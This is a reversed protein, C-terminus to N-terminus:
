AVSKANAVVIGLIEKIVSPVLRPITENLSAQCGAVLSQEIAGQVSADGDMYDKAGNPNTSLWALACLYAERRLAEVLLAHAIQRVGHSPWATVIREDAADQLQHASWLGQGDPAVCMRVEIIAVTGDAHRGKVGWLAKPADAM